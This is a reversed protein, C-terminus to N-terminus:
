RGSEQDTCDLRKSNRSRKRRAPSSFFTRREKHVIVPPTFHLSLAACLEKYTKDKPQHPTCLDRLLKYTRAGLHNILESKKMSEDIKNSVFFQELQECYLEWEESEGDFSRFSAAAM